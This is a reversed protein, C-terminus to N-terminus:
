SGSSHCPPRSYHVVSDYVFSQKGRRTKLVRFIEESSKEVSPIDSFPEEFLCGEGYSGLGTVGKDTSM